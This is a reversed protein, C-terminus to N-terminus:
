NRVEAIAQDIMKEFDIPEKQKRPPAKRPRDLGSRIRDVVAQRKALGDDHQAQYDFGDEDQFERLLKGLKSVARSDVKVKMHAREKDSPRRVNEAYPVIRLVLVGRHATIACLKRKWKVILALREVMMTAALTAIADATTKANDDHRVYYTGLSYTMPLESVPQADILKLTAGGDAEDIDELDQTSLIKYGDEVEVAKEKHKPSGHCQKCYESRSIRTAGVADGHNCIEVLSKERPDDTAKGITIPINIFPGLQIVGSFMSRPSAM